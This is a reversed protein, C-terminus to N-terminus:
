GAAGATETGPSAEMAAVLKAGWALVEAADLLRQRGAGEYRGAQDLCVAALRDLDGGLAAVELVDAVQEPSPAM